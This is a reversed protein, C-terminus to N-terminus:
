IGNQGSYADKLDLIWLFCTWNTGSQNLEQQMHLLFIYM